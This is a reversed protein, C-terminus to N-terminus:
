PSPHLLSPPCTKLQQRGTAAATKGSHPHLHPLGTPRKIHTHSQTHRHTHTHLQRWALAAPVPHPPSLLHLWAGAAYQLPAAIIGTEIYCKTSVAVLLNELEAHVNYHGCSIKWVTRDTRAVHEDAPTVRAPTFNSRAHRSYGLKEGRSEVAMLISWLWVWWELASTLRSGSGGGPKCCATSQSAPEQQLHTLCTPTAQRSARQQQM